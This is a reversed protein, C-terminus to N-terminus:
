TVLGLATGKSQGQSASLQANKSSGQHSLSGTPLPYFCRPEPLRGGGGVGGLGAEEEAQPPSFCSM